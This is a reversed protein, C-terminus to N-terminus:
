NRRCELDVEIYNYQSSETVQFVVNQIRIHRRSHVRRLLISNTNTNYQNTFYLYLAQMWVHKIPQKKIYLSLNFLICKSGTSRAVECKMSDPRLYVWEFARPFSVVLLSLIKALFNRRTKLFQCVTFGRISRCRTPLTSFYVLM